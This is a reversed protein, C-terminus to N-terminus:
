MGGGRFLAVLQKKLQKASFIDAAGTLLDDMYMGSSVASAALPYNHRDDMVLQKLVQQALYPACTTDYVARNMKYTKISDDISEKWVIRLLDRYSEDIFKM